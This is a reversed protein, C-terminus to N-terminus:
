GRHGALGSDLVVDHFQGHRLEPQSGDGLPGIVALYSALQL